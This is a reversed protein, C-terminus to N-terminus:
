LTILHYIKSYNGIRKECTTTTKKCGSVHQEQYYVRHNHSCFLYMKALYSWTEHYDVSLVGSFYIVQV